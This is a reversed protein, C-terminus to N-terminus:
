AGLAGSVAIAISALAASPATKVEHEGSKPV